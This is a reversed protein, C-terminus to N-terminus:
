EVTGMKEFLSGSLAAIDDLPIARGGELLLLRHYEDLKKVRATLTQYSGGQKRADPEFYTVTVEPRQFLHELLFHQRLDLLAQTEEDLELKCDTQRATEKIAAGYGTLAAFPSFQAAREIMSMRPHTKSVPHPLHIIDDYPGNM